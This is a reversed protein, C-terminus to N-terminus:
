KTPKKSLSALYTGLAKQVKEAMILQVANDIDAEREMQFRNILAQRSQLKTLHRARQHVKTFPVPLLLPMILM